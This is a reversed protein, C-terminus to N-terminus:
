RLKGGEQFTLVALCCDIGGVIFAREQIHRDNEIGGQEKRKRQGITYLNRTRACTPECGAANVKRGM